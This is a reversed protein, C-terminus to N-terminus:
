LWATEASHTRRHACVTDPLHPSGIGRRFPLDHVPVCLHRRFSRCSFLNEADGFCYLSLFFTLPGSKEPCSRSMQSLPFKTPKGHLRCWVFGKTNKGTQKTLLPGRTRTEGRGGIKEIMQPSRPRAGALWGPARLSNEFGRIRIGIGRPLGDRTACWCHNTLQGRHALAFILSIERSAPSSAPTRKM